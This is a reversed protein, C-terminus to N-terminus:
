RLAAWFQELLDPTVEAAHDVTLKQLRSLVTLQMLGPQTLGKNRHLELRTLQKLHGIAQLCAM